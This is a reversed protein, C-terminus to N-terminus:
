KSASEAVITRTTEILKGIERAALIKRGHVADNRRQVCWMWDGKGDKPARSIVTPGLDEGSSMKLIRRVAREFELAALEGALKPDYDAVADAVDLKSAREFLAFAINKLRIARLFRDAAYAREVHKPL